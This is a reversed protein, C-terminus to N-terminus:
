NGGEPCNYPEGHCPRDHHDMGAAKAIHEQSDRGHSPQAGVEGLMPKHETCLVLDRFQEEGAADNILPGRHLPSGAHVQEGTRVRGRTLYLCPQLVAIKGNTPHLIEIPLQAGCEFCDADSLNDHPRRERSRNLRCMLTVPKKFRDILCWRITLPINQQRHRFREEMESLGTKFHCAERDSLRKDDDM